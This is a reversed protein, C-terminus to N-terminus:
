NATSAPAPPAPADTVIERVSVGTIAGNFTQNGSPAFVVRGDDGATVDFRYNWSGQERFWGGKEQGIVLAGSTASPDADGARVGFYVQYRHGPLVNVARELQVPSGSADTFTGNQAVWGEPVQWASADVLEPGLEVLDVLTLSGDYDQTANFSLTDGESGAVPTFIFTGNQGHNAFTTAGFAIAVSGRTRGSFGVRLRYSAGPKLTPVQTQSLVGQAGPYHTLVGDSWTWGGGFQWDATSGNSVYQRVMRGSDAAFAPTAVFLAALLIFHKM